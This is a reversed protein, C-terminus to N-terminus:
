NDEMSKAAVCFKHLTDITLTTFDKKFAHVALSFEQAADLIEAPSKIYGDANKRKRQVFETLDSLTGKLAKFRNFLEDGTM